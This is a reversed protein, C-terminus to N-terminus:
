HSSDDLILFKFSSSSGVLYLDDSCIDATVPRLTLNGLRGFDVLNLQKRLEFGNPKYLDCSEGTNALSIIIIM